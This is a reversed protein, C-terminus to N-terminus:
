FCKSSFSPTVGERPYTRKTGVGPSSTAQLPLVKPASATSASGTRDPPSSSRMDRFADLCFDFLLSRGFTPRSVGPSSLTKLHRHVSVLIECDNAAILVDDACSRLTGVGGGLALLSCMCIGGIGSTGGVGVSSLARSLGVSGIRFAAPRRFLKLNLRKPLLGAAIGSARGFM